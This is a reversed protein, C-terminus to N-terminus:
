KKEGKMAAEMLKKYRESHETAAPRLFPRAAMRSTGIEVYPAYEVNSGIYVGSGKEGPAEGIYAAKVTEEDGDKINTARYEEVHPKEGALAYTISNRLRGTDVAGKATIEKKANKEAEIGIATLGKVVAENLYELFKDTNDNVLVTSDGVKFKKGSFDATSERKFGGFFEEFEDAM